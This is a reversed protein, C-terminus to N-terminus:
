WIWIVQSVPWKLRRFDTSVAESFDGPGRMKLDEESIKFGDNISSMIKMRRICEEGSNDTVLICHSQSEGRGVRGRLQHLQSLGFREANEIMMVSANPIDVGVEVVTTCILVDIRRNKFDEM